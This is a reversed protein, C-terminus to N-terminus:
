LIFFHQGSLDDRGCKRLRAPSARPDRAYCRRWIRVPVPESYREAWTVEGSLIKPLHEQKQEDSGHVILPPGLM